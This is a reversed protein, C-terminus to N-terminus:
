IEFVAVLFQLCFSPYQPLLQSDIGSRREICLGLKKKPSLLLSVPSAQTICAVMTGKPIFHGLLEDDQAAVRTVVPVISCLLSALFPLTIAAFTLCCLLM